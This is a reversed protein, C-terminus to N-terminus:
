RVIGRGTERELILGRLCGLRPCNRGEAAWRQTGGGEGGGETWIGRQGSVAAGRNNVSGLAKEEYEGLRRCGPPINFTEAM